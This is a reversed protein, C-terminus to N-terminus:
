EWTKDLDQQDTALLGRRSKLRFERSISDVHVPKEYQVAIHPFCAHAFM